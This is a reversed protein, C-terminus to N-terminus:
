GKSSYLGTRTDVRIADGTELHEPVQVVLGTALKAPKTRATVSGGKVMPATEEITMTVLLPLDLGLVRGESVVASLGELGEFLYPWAEEFDERSLTFQSFDQLDMFTMSERDGFLIQVPRREVDAETQPDDGRFARDTKRGSRLSRLRVKYLTVSGRAAPMQVSLSEVVHPEGDIKVVDGKRLDAAKKM